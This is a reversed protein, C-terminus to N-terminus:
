ATATLSCSNSIIRSAARPPWDQPYGTGNWVLWFVCNMPIAIRPMALM